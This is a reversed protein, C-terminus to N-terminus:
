PQRPKATQAESRLHLWTLGPYRAFGADFSVPRYGGATAFGALYADTWHRGRIDVTGAWDDLVDDLQPPDDAVVRTL